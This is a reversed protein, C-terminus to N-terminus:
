STSQMVQDIIYGPNIHIAIKSTTERLPTTYKLFFRLQNQIAITQWQHTHLFMVKTLCFPCYSCLHSEVSSSYRVNEPRPYGNVVYGTQSLLDIGHDTSTAPSTYPIHGCLHSIQDM